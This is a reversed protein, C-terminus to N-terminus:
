VVGWKTKLEAILAAVGVDQNSVRGGPIGTYVREEGFHNNDWVGADGGLKTWNIAGTSGPWETKQGVHNYMTIMTGVQVIVYINWLNAGQAGSRIGPVTAGGFHAVGYQEGVAALYEPIGTNSSDGQATQTFYSGSGPTTGATASSRIHRGENLPAGENLYKEVIVWTLCGGSIFVPHSLEQFTIEGDAYKAALGNQVATKWLPRKADSPAVAHRKLDGFTYSAAGNVAGIPDNNAAVNTLFPAARETFLISSDSFDFKHYLTFPFLDNDVPPDYTGFWAIDQATAIRKLRFWHSWHGTFDGTGGNAEGIRLLQSADQDVGALITGTGDLVGNIYMSFKGAGVGDFNCVVPVWGMAVTISTTSTYSIITVNPSHKTVQYLLKNGVTTAVNMGTQGGTGSNSQNWTMATGDALKKIWFMDSGTPNTGWFQKFTGLSNAVQFWDNTGDHKIYANRGTGLGLKPRVTTSSAQIWSGYQLEQIAGILDDEASAPTKQTSTLAEQWRTNTLHPEIAWILDTGFREQAETQLSTVAGGSGHTQYFRKPRM